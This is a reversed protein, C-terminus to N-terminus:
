AALFDFPKERDTAVDWIFVPYVEEGANKRRHNLATVVARAAPLGPVFYDHDFYSIEDVRHYLAIKYDGYLMPEILLYENM